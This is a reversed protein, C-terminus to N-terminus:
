RTAPKVEIDTAVFKGDVIKGSVVAPKAGRSGCFQHCDVDSGTVIYAKGDIKVGLSCSKVGDIHYSCLACGAEAAKDSIMGPAASARANAGAIREYEVEMMKYEKGSKPDKAFMELTMSNPGTRTEVERMTTLKKQIPCHYQYEWTLMTGDSSRTGTGMMIGTSHSDIWTGQFKQSVNDFGYTGLGSFPGMGPIDGEVKVQTYRGDMLSTVTSTIESLMPETDPAMWMKSTGQWTGVSENLWAQMEGPTGAVMCAMMDEETWGPPLQMAHEDQMQHSMADPKTPKKTDQSQAFAVSGAAVLLALGGVISYRCNCSM